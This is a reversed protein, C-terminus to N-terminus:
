GTSSGAEDDSGEALVSAADPLRSNLPSPQSTISDLDAEARRHKNNLTNLYKM